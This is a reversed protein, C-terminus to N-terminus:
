SVDQAGASEGLLLMKEVSEIIGDGVTYMGCHVFSWAKTTSAGHTGGLMGDSQILSSDVRVEGCEKTGTSQARNDGSILKKASGRSNVLDDRSAACTMNIHKGEFDRGICIAVNKCNM